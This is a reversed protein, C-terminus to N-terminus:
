VLREQIRPLIQGSLRIERCEDDGIGFDLRLVTQRDWNGRDPWEVVVVQGKELCLELELVSAEDASGMRYLDVHVLPIPGPHHDMLAFSPSRVEDPEFVQLGRALGRVLTTKGAALEGALLILDGPELLAGLSEGFSETEKPSNLHRIV